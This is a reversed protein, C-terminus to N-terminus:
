NFLTCLNNTQMIRVTQIDLQKKKRDYKDKYVQILWNGIILRILRSLIMNIWFYLLFM